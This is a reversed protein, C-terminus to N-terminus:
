GLRAHAADALIIKQIVCALSAVRTSEDCLCYPIYTGYTDCKVRCRSEGRLSYIHCFGSGLLLRARRVSVM